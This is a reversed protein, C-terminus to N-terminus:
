YKRLTAPVGVTVDFRVYVKESVLRFITSYILRGINGIKSGEIMTQDLHDLVVFVCTTLNSVNNRAGEILCCVSSRFLPIGFVRFSKFVSHRRSRVASM